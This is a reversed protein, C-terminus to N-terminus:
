ISLKEELNNISKFSLLEYKLLSIKGNSYYEKEIPKFNQDGLYTNFDELGLNIINEM